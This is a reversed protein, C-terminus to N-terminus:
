ADVSFLRWPEPVGKLARVGRERFRIGSGAVLDKVTSSVVIEGAGAEAAVRAGVHVAIGRVAGGALEIEGTHLGARIEIGVGNTASPYVYRPGLVWHETYRGTDLDARFIWGVVAGREYIDYVQYGVPIVGPDVQAAAPQQFVALTCAAAFTARSLVNAYPRVVSHTATVIGASKAYVMRMRGRCPTRRLAGGRPARRHM